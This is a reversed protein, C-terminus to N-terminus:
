IDWSVTHAAYIAESIAELGAFVCFPAGFLVHKKPVEFAM